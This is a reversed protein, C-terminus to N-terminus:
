SCSALYFPLSLPLLVAEQQSRLIGSEYVSRAQVLKIGEEQSEQLTLAKSYYSRTLKRIVLLLKGVLNKSGPLCTCKSCSPIEIDKNLPYRKHHTQNTPCPSPASNPSPRKTSNTFSRFMLGLRKIALNCM